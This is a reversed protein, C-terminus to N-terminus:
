ELLRKQEDSLLFKIERVNGTVLDGDKNVALYYDSEDTSTKTLLIMKEGTKKDVVVTDSPVAELVTAEKAEPKEGKQLAVFKIFSERKEAETMDKVEREREEAEMLKEAGLSRFWKGSYNKEFHAVWDNVKSKQCIVLNVNNGYSKMKESGVFIKGFGMDLYYAVRDFNKTKDLAEQQHTFLQM